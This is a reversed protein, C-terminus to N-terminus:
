NYEVELTFEGEYRGPTAESLDITGGIWVYYEGDESFELEQTEEAFLESSQQEDQTYGSVAYDVFILGAGDLNVMERSPEFTLRFSAGPAGEAMMLASRESNIPNITVQNEVREVGLLNMERVTIVEIATAEVTATVSISTEQLSQSYADPTLFHHLSLVLFLAFFRALPIRVPSLGIFNKYQNTSFNVTM